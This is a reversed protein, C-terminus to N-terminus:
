TESSAIFYAFDEVCAAGSRTRHPYALTKFRHRSQSDVNLYRKTLRLTGIAIEM